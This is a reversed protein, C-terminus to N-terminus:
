VDLLWKKWREYGSCSSQRCVMGPAAYKGKVYYEDLGDATNFRPLRYQM